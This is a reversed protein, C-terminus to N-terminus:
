TTARGKGVVQEKVFEQITFHTSKNKLVCITSVDPGICDPCKYEANSLNITNTPSLYHTQVECSSSLFFFNEISMKFKNKNHYM